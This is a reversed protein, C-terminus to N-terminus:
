KIVLFKGMKEMGGLRALFIYTGSGVINGAETRLNWTIGSANNVTDLRRILQGSASYISIETEPPVNGFVLGQEAFQMRYPNPYAFVNELDNAQQAISVRNAKHNNLPNGNVDLLNKVTIFYQEGLSGLRNDGALTLIPASANNSDIAASIISGDPELSYNDMQLVSTANLGMNFHLRLLKKNVMEVSQLYVEGDAPTYEFENHSSDPLLPTPFIM